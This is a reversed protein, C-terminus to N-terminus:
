MLCCKYLVYPFICFIAVMSPFARGRRSAYRLMYIALFASALDFIGNVVHVGMEDLHRFVCLIQFWDYSDAGCLISVESSAHNQSFLFENFSVHETLFVSMELGLDM